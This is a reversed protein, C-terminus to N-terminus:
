KHINDKVDIKVKYWMYNSVKDKGVINYGPWFYWIGGKDLKIKGILTYEQHPALVVSDMKGFDMNILSDKEKRRCGVYIGNDDFYIKDKSINKLTFVVKLTDGVRSTNRCEGENNEIVIMFKELKLGDKTKIGKNIKYITNDCSPIDKKSKFIFGGTNITILAFFILIQWIKIKNNQNTM